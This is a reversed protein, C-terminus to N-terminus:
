EGYCPREVFLKDLSPHMEYDRHYGRRIMVEAVHGPALTYGDDTIEFVIKGEPDLVRVLAPQRKGIKM